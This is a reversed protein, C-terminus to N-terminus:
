DDQISQSMDDCGQLDVTNRAAFHRTQVARLGLILHNELECDM